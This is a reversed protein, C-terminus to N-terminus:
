FERLSGALAGAASAALDRLAGSKPMLRFRMALLYGISLGLSADLEYLERALVRQAVREFAHRLEGAAADLGEILLVELADARLARRRAHERLRVRAEDQIKGTTIVVVHAAETEAELDLARRAHAITIDGDRMYFLFPEGAVNAMLQAEGEDSASRAAVDSAPIGLEDSLLARLRHAMWSGEKLLSVALETPAALEEVREDALYTGCADCMANSATVMEFADLSPLRFLSRGQKRCSVLVDRRVLGGAALKGLLPEISAEGGAATAAVGSVLLEANRGNAQAEILRRLLRRAEGDELMEVVRAREADTPTAGARSQSPQSADVERGAAFRRFGGPVHTEVRRWGNGSAHAARGETASATAGGKGNGGAGRLAELADQVNRCFADLKQQPEDTDDRYVIGARLGGGSEEGGRNGFVLFLAFDEFCFVDGTVYPADGETESWAAVLRDMERVREAGLLALEFCHLRASRILPVLGREQLKELLATRAAGEAEYESRRSEVFLM